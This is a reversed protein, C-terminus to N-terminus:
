KIVARAATAYDVGKDKMYARIKQDLKVREPDANEAYTAEDGADSEGGPAARERTARESFEVRAPLEDLLARLKDALPGKDDGEGFEVPEAEAPRIADLVAAVVPAAAGPLRGAEVLQEAYAVHEAHRAKRAADAQAALLTENQKKLSENQARLAAAEEPSVATEQQKPEPKPDPEPPTEAFEVDIVVADDAEGFEVPRLGKVAPPMAGLFGIHRLYWVGPVPNRPSDPPYFAASVKKYAGSKVQEAFEAQVQAPTAILRGASAALRQVWGWAPADTKPHGIVIPAEHLAPDYAAASAALDADSFTRAVGANDTRNGSAFIEIRKM